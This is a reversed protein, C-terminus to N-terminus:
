RMERRKKGRKNGRDRWTKREDERRERRGGEEGEKRWEEKGVEERRERRGGERKGERRCSLDVVELILPYNVESIHHLKEQIFLYAKVLIYTYQQIRPTELNHQGSVVIICM